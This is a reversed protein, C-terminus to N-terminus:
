LTHPISLAEWVLFFPTFSLKRPRQASVFFRTNNKPAESQHGPRTDECYKVEVLHIERMNVNLEHVRRVDRSNPSCGTHRKSPWKENWSSYAFLM